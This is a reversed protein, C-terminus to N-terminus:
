CEKLVEKYKNQLENILFAIFLSKDAPDMNKVTPSDEFILDLSNKVYYAIEGISM